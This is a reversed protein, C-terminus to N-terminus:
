VAAEEPWRHNFISGRNYHGPATLRPHLQFSLSPSWARTKVLFLGSGRTGTFFSVVEAM